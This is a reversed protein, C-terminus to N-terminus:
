AQKVHRSALVCHIMNGNAEVWEYALPQEGVCMSLHYDEKTSHIKVAYKGRWDAEDATSNEWDDTYAVCYEQGKIHITYIGTAGQCDTKAKECFNVDILCTGAGCGYEFHWDGGEKHLPKFDTKFAKCDTITFASQFASLSFTSDHVPAFMENALALAILAFYIFRM